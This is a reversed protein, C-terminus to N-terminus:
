VRFGLGQVEFGSDLGWIGGQIRVDFELGFGWDRLEMGPVRFEFGEIRVGFEQVLVRM